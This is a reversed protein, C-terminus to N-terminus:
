IALEIEHHCNSSYAPIVVTGGSAVISSSPKIFLVPKDPTKNGLEKIHEAYNRGVCYIRHVPFRRNGGRIALSPVPPLPIVYESSM